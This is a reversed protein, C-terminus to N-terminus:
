NTWQKYKKDWQARRGDATYIDITRGKNTSVYCTAKNLINRERYGAKCKMESLQYKSPKKCLM